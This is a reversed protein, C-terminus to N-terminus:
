AASPLTAKRLCIVAANAETSPTSPGPAKAAMMSLRRDATSRAFRKVSHSLLSSEPVIQLGDDFHHSPVQAVAGQGRAQVAAASRADNEITSSAAYFTPSFSNSHHPQIFIPNLESRPPIEHEDNFYLLCWGYHFIRSLRVLM